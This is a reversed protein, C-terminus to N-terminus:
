NKWYLGKEALFLWFFFFDLLKWSKLVDFSVYIISLIDKLAIMRDSYMWFCYFLDIQSFSGLHGSHVTFLCSTALNLSIVFNELNEEEKKTMTTWDSNAAFCRKWLDILSLFNNWFLLAELYMIGKSSWIMKLQMSKTVVKNDHFALFYISYSSFGVISIFWLTKFRNSCLHNFLVNLYKSPNNEEYMCHSGRVVVNNSRWTFEQIYPCYDALAVSGGYKAVESEYIHPISKFNQM